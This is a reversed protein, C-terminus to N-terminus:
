KMKKLEKLEREYLGENEKRQKTLSDETTDPKNGKLISSDSGKKAEPLLKVQLFPLSIICHDMEALFSDKAMPTVGLRAEVKEMRKHSLISTDWLDQLRAKWSTSSAEWKSSHPKGNVPESTAQSATKPLAGAKGDEEGEQYNWLEKLEGRMIAKIIIAGLVGPVLYLLAPQGQDYIQVMMGALILGLVYGVTAAHFYPKSFLTGQIQPPCLANSVSSGKSLFTSTWFREGWRGSAPMYIPKEKGRKAPGQYWLYLDFRLAWAIMLGPLFVDGLGLMAMRETGPQPTLLKAPIEITTAVTIMMPTYFVMYIDYFFLGILLLAGTSFSGPSLLSMYSYMFSHALINNVRWDVAGPRLHTALIVITALLFSLFTPMSIDGYAVPLKRTGLRFRFRRSYFNRLRWLSDIFAPSLNPTSVWGPIPSSQVLTASMTKTEYGYKEPKITWLKQDRTYFTPFIFSHLLYLGDEAMMALTVLSVFSFVAKFIKNLLEPDDLWIILFYMGTLMVGAMVPFLIADLPSLGEPIINNERAQSEDDETDDKSRSKSRPAASSPRTLTAHSSTYIIWLTILLEHILSPLRGYIIDGAQHIAYWATTPNNVDM